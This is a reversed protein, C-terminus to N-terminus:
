LVREDELKEWFEEKEEASLYVQLTCVSIVHYINIGFVLKVHIIRDTHRRVEVM